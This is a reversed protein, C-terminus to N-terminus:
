TRPLLTITACGQTGTETTLRGAINNNEAELNIQNFVDDYLTQSISSAVTLSIATPQDKSNDTSNDKKSCGAISLSLIIGTCAYNFFIKMNTKM